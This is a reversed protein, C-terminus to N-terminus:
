PDGRDYFGASWMFQMRALAAAAEALPRCDCGYDVLMLRDRDWVFNSPRPNTHGFGGAALESFCAILEPRVRNWDAAASADTLPIGPEAPYRVALIDSEVQEVEIAYLHEAGAAHAALGRLWKQTQRLDRVPHTWNLIYKTIWGRGAYVFGEGGHGILRDEPGLHPTIRRLVHEGPDCDASRALIAARM